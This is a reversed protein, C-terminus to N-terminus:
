RCEHGCVSGGVREVDGSQQGGVLVAGEFQVLPEDVGGHRGNELGDAKVGGEDFALACVEPILVVVAVDIAEASVGDEVAAAIVGDDAVRELLGHVEVQRVEKADAGPADRAEESLFEDRLRIM